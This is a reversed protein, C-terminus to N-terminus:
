VCLNGDFSFNDEIVGDSKLEPPVLSSIVKPDTPKEVFESIKADEGLSLLGLGYADSLAVPKAAVTVEAKRDLHEDIMKSFDMRYLQDGSLIVFLDDPEAHFHVINRRVADADKTGIM